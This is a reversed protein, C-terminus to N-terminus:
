RSPARMLGANVIYKRLIGSRFVMCSKVADGYFAIRETHCESVGFSAALEQDTKAHSSTEGREQDVERAPGAGCFGFGSLVSFGGTGGVFTSTIGSGSGLSRGAAFTGGQCGGIGVGACGGGIGLERVLGSSVGGGGAVCERVGPLLECVGLIGGLSGGCSFGDCLSFGSGRERVGLGIGSLGCRGLLLCVRGLGPGVGGDCGQLLLLGRSFGLTASVFSGGRRASRQDGILLSGFFNLFLCPADRRRRRRNVDRWRWLM